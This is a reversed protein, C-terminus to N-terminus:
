RMYHLMTESDGYSLLNLMHYNLNLKGRLKREQEELMRLIESTGKPEINDYIESNYDSVEIRKKGLQINDYLFRFGQVITEDDSHIDLNVQNLGFRSRHRAMSFDYHIGDNKLSIENEVKNGFTFLNSFCIEVFMGRDEINNLNQRYSLDLYINPNYGNNKARLAGIRDSIARTKKENNSQILAKLLEDSPVDSFCQDVFVESGVEDYILGFENEMKYSLELDYQMKDLLLNNFKVVEDESSVKPDLEDLFRHYLSAMERLYCYEIYNSLFVYIINKKINDNEIDLMEAELNAIENNINISRDYVRLNIGVNLTLDNISSGFGRNGTIGLHSLSLCGSNAAEMIDRKDAINKKLDENRHLEERVARLFISHEKAFSGQMVFQNGLASLFLTILLIKRVM